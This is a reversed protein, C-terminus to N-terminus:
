IKLRKQKKKLKEETTINVFHDEKNVANFLWLVKHESECSFKTNEQSPTWKEAASGTNWGAKDEM